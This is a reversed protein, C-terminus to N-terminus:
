KIFIATQRIEGYMKEAKTAPELGSAKVRKFLTSQNLGVSKAFKPITMLEM